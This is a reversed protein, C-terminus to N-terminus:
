QKCIHVCTYSLPMTFMQTPLSLLYQREIDYVCVYVCIKYQIANIYSMYTNVSLQHNRIIDSLLPIMGLFFSMGGGDAGM